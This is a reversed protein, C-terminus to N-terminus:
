KRARTYAPAPTPAGGAVFFGQCNPREANVHIFRVSTVAGCTPGCPGAPPAQSQRTRGNRSTVQGRHIPRPETRAPCLPERASTRSSFDGAARGMWPTKEGGSGQSLGGDGPGARIAEGRRPAPRRSNNPEKTRNGPLVDHSNGCPAGGRAPQGNKET